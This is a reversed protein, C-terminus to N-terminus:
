GLIVEPPDVFGRSPELVPSCPGLMSRLHTLMAGVYGVFPRVQGWCLGCIPWCLGLMAGLHALMPGNLSNYGWCLGLMPWGLGLKSPVHASTTWCLELM